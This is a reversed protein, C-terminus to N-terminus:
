ASAFWAEINKFGSKDQVSQPFENQLAKTDIAKEYSAMVNPFTDKLSQFWHHYAAKANRVDLSPEPHIDLLKSASEAIKDESFAPAEKNLLSKEVTRLLAMHSSEGHGEAKGFTTSDAYTTSTAAQYIVAYRRLLDSAFVQWENVPWQSKSSAILQKFSDVLLSFAGKEGDTSFAALKEMEDGLFQLLTALNKRQYSLIRARLLTWAVTHSMQTPFRTEPRDLDSIQLSMIGLSKAHYSPVKTERDETADNQAFRAKVSGTGDPDETLPILAVNATFDTGLAGPPDQRLTSTESAILRPNSQMKTIDETNKKTADSVDIGELIKDKCKSMVTPFSLYLAEIWHGVAFKYAEDPLSLNHKVDLLTKAANAIETEIKQLRAPASDTPDYNKPNIFDKQDGLLSNEHARLLERASYEGHGIARGASYTAAKSLQYAQVYVKILQSVRLSWDYITTAHDAQDLGTYTEPSSLELSLKEIEKKEMLEVKQKGSLKSEDRTTKMNDALKHLERQRHVLFTLVDHLNLSKLSKLEERVLTWAVTHSKQTDFRTDPRDSDGIRLDEVWLQNSKYLPEKSASTDGESNPLLSVQTTFNTKRKRNVRNKVDEANLDAKAKKKSPADLEMGNLNSLDKIEPYVFDDPDDDHDDSSADDDKNLRLRQQADDEPVVEGSDYVYVYLDDKIRRLGYTIIKTIPHQHPQDFEYLDNTEEDQYLEDPLKAFKGQVPTQMATTRQLWQSVARNGHLRQLQLITGQSLRSPQLHAPSTPVNVTPEQKKQVGIQPVLNQFPM